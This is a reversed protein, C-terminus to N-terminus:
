AGPPARELRTFSASNAGPAIGNASRAGSSRRAAASMIPMIPLRVRGGWSFDRCKTAREATLFKLQEKTEVGEAMVPLELGQALGIVARVIAASQPSREVNSIFSQDIKIKDFPFSQLYSLSSYGTGFDDMAIRVGLAKLRRLISVARSFDGILVGETIELEVRGAALGTELLVTHVLSPLDGHQFQVPSLNIAIQLPRPWSAAEQCAARLIWEGLPIILGSEEALPIFTGPPVLGRTPHQWRVLAEFGIIEGDMRAQPQYHILLEGKAIADRLEHQLARRERLRLDMEPEFFGVGGRGNAKARYLAADANGMLTPADRGDIPFVAVGISLGSRLSQGDVTMDGAVAALLRDALAVATAPQPGVAILSFEDGGIRALFAGDAEGAFRGSIERLLADGTAHGFVDNVEKFRDLDLCLVAFAQDGDAAQQLTAELRENFSTRNPLDTLADHHAMHAIRAEAQKRETVDEIVGLLYQPEGDDDLIPLRRTTVIRTGNGPTEIAHVDFFQEEGSKLLERDHITILDAATQSFVDYATKGIMQDRGIGYYREGARNILVYRLERPEKVFITVPVNEVVMDLFAQARRLEDDAKRRDTVDEIVTMIYQSQADDDRILLRRTNVVRKGNKPTEITHEITSESENSELLRKDHASITVAAAESRVEYVTKGIMQERPIGFYGEGARNILVYRLTHPEKVVITVPINEIVLDLFSKTRELERESRRRETIDEHTGVWDGGAIPRNTVSIARGDSSEVIWSIAKGEAMATVLQRRYEEPDRDLNGAQIRNRIVDSLTTGGPKIIGRSLGYMEIYRDNCVVLRETADFLVVGQSLNNLATALRLDRERLRREAFAGALCLALVAATFNAIAWALVTPSLSTQEMLRTPDPMLQVAGMATFHHSVIALTLLIAAALSGRLDDRRVAITISGLGLLMGLLVSALVLDLSWAVHGPIKVAAMGLYHMCAIGAGLVAGGTPAAFRPPGYITIVLGLTTVLIAALLSLATLPIDYGVGLGPDYALMAIFHTSWVGCGTAVGATITWITRARRQAARAAHLLKIGAVNSLFCVISALIVLQWNHESTLCTVVRYM